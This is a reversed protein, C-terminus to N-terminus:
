SRTSGIGSNSIGAGAPVRAASDDHPAAKTSSEKSALSGAVVWAAAGITWSVFFGTWNLQNPAKVVLPVWVLATFVGIMGAELMAALRPFVGFLVGLGAAIHGAGSLYAWGARFPLWAPVFGITQPAYVFHSLGVPILALGFLFRAIRMGSQGTAFKLKASQRERRDAAFLVLGAAVIMAIEGFGLWNVEVLPAMVVQPLKLLLLWLLLYVLMVGSSVVATRRSLLGAGGAVMVAGSAYALYGRAPVWAPVPQWQLAFDGHVFSLVGLGILGLAFFVRDLKLV